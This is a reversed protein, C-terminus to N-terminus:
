DKHRPEVAAAPGRKNDKKRLIPPCSIDLDKWALDAVAPGKNHHKQHALVWFEQTMPELSVRTKLRIKAAVETRFNALVRRQDAQGSLGPEGISGGVRISRVKQQWLPRNNTRLDSLEKKCAPDKRAM